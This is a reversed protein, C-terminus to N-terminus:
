LPIVPDRPTRQGASLITSDWKRRFSEWELRDLRANAAETGPALPQDSMPRIRRPGEHRTDSTGPGAGPGPADASAVMMVRPRNEPNESRGTRISGVRPM